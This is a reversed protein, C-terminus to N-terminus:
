PKTAIGARAASRRDTDGGCQREGECRERNIANPRHHEVASTLGESTSGLQEESHPRVTKYEVEPWGGAATARIACEDREKSLHSRECQQKKAAGNAPEEAPPVERVLAERNAPATSRASSTEQEKAPVPPDENM